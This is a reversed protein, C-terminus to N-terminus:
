PSQRRTDPTGAGRRRSRLAARGLAPLVLACDAYRGALRRPDSALRWLWEAKLARVARPARRQRGAVFDLGAGVSLVGMVPLRAAIRSALIEQRPAGLALLCIRADSAALADIAAGAEPGEPDFGMSPALRLAVRLGPHRAGLREAARELAAEDGGLFAV